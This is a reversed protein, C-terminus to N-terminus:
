GERPLLSSGRPERGRPEDSEWPNVVQLGEIGVFDRTNRTALVLGGTLAVAAIQADEVSVPLGQERRKAVIRAYHVAAECDFPLCREFFDEQFTQEAMALLVRQRKGEPLLSIGLRIEAKTVACIWLELDPHQDLWRVVGANPAPRMLESLVNTDLLIM